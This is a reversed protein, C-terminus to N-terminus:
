VALAGGDGADVDPTADSGGALPEVSREVEIRAAMCRRLEASLSRGHRRAVREFEDALDTPVRASVFRFSDVHSVNARGEVAVPRRREPM